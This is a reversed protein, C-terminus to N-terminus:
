NIKYCYTNNIKTYSSDACAYTKPTCTVNTKNNNTANCTSVASASCTTVTESTETGFAYRDTCTCGTKDCTSTTCTKTTSETYTGSAKADTCSCGSKGCTSLTCTKTTSESYTGSASYSCSCGSKSCTGTSCSYYSTGGYTGSASTSCSCGSNSCTSTTCSKTTEETYTGSASTSCSCGSTSCTSTTCDKSTKKIYTGSPTTTCSCGSESCTSATCTKSTTGSQYTGSAGTATQTCSCGSKSCTSTTCNSYKNIKQCAQQTVQYKYGNRGGGCQTSVNGLDSASSCSSSKPTCSNSDVGSTVTVFGYSTGSVYQGSATTKYTCSCGSKSCTSTTCSAYKPVSYTGSATTTCSCGTESCTSTTCSKSTEKIYTGSPTTTCSCGSKSCTSTTCSKSSTVTYTGSPVTTCSCGSNGCTSSTCSYSNYESYTGSAGSTTCSCGSKSCTSTTCAYSTSEVYTGSAKADTCSCGPKSCTSLTCTKTTSETYTGSPAKTQYACTKSTKTYETVKTGGITVSCNGQNGAADEVWGYFTGNSLSATSTSNYTRTNTTTLGYKTVGVNDSSTMTIGSETVTFTCTPASGDGWKAYLTINSAPKYSAGADGVKTTLSSNSYWGAFDFGTKVPTPLTVNGGTWRAYLTVIAEDTTTLNKVSQGNSYVKAGSVSTAWGDFTYTSTSTSVPATNAGNYNYTVTYTKQYGNNNLNKAVDYTHTSNATTGTTSTNGNYKVTYTIPTWRAYIKGDILSSIKTTETVLVGGTEQTYWGNFIYGPREPYPLPGIEGDASTEMCLPAEDSNMLEICFETSIIYPDTATGSGKVRVGNIHIVPRVHSTNDENLGTPTLNKVVNNNLVFYPLRNSLYSNDGGIYLYEPYSLIGTKNFDSATCSFAGNTVTCNFKNTNIPVVEEIQSTFSTLVTKLETKTTTDVVTKANYEKSNINYREGSINILLALFLATFVIRKIYKM